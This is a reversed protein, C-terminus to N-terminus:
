QNSKLAQPCRVAFDKATGFFMECAAYTCGALRIIQVAVAGDADM